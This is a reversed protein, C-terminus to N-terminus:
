QRVVRGIAWDRRSVRSGPNGPGQAAAGRFPHRPTPTASGHHYARTVAHGTGRALLSRNVPYASAYALALAVILSRWFIPSDLGATMAGPILTM